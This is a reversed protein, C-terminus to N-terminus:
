TECVNPRMVHLKKILFIDEAVRLGACKEVNKNFLIDLAATWNNGEYIFM